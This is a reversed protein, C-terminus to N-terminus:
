SNSVGLAGGGGGGGGDGIQCSQPMMCTFALSPGPVFTFPSSRGRYM